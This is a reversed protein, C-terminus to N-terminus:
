GRVQESHEDSAPLCAASRPSRNAKPHLRRSVGSSVPVVLANCATGRLAAVATSGLSAPMATARGHRGLVLLDAMWEGAERLIETSPNGIRVKALVPPVRRRREGLFEHLRTTAAAVMVDRSDSGDREAEYWCVLLTQLTVPEPNLLSALTDLAAEHLAPSFESLDTTLLVRRVPRRFARRVVLVPASSRQLVSEVTSGLFGHRARDRRAAGVILLDAAVEEAVTSLQLAADGELCRCTIRAANPFRRTHERLRQESLTRRREDAASGHHEPHPEFNSRPPAVAHVVQLRAELREALAAATALVPDEPSPRLLSDEPQIEAVGVVITRIRKEM